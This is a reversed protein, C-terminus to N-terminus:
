PRTEEPLSGTTIARFVEDLRGREVHLETVDWGHTRAAEGIATVLSSGAKPLLQYRVRDPHQELVAVDTVNPLSQLVPYAVTQVGRVELIVANHRPSQAELEAPAGDAVVQGRAIIMARSCVADVEELIHTSLIIAKNEAM